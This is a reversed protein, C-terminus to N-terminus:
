YTEIEAPAVGLRDAIIALTRGQPRPSKNLEIREVTKADLPAFDSRKLGRQLRLRRLSGGFTPDCEVLNAKYRRRFDADIEYLIASTAAEYQGLRVTQGYDVVEVDTFDPAPYDVREPFASFPEIVQELNGRYLIIAQDEADVMVGIFRDDREESALVEALVGEPLLRVDDRSVVRQFTAQLFAQRQRSLSDLVLLRRDVKPRRPPIPLGSLAQASRAIWVSNSVADLAARVEAGPRVVQVNPWPQRGDDSEVMVVNPM